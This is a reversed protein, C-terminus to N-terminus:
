PPLLQKKKEGGQRIILWVGMVWGLAEAWSKGPPHTPGGLLSRIRHLRSRGRGWRSGEPVLHDPPCLVPSGGRPLSCKCPGLGRAPSCPLRCANLGPHLHTRLWSQEGSGVSFRAPVTATATRLPLWSREPLLHPFHFQPARHGGPSLFWFGTGCRWRRSAFSLTRVTLTALILYVFGQAIRLHNAFCM